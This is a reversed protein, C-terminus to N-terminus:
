TIRYFFKDTNYIDTFPAGYNDIVKDCFIQWILLQYISKSIQSISKQKSEAMCGEIYDSSADSIWVNRGQTAGPRPGQGRHGERPHPGEPELQPAQCDVHAARGSKKKM